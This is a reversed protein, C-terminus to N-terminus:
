TRKNGDPGLVRIPRGAIFAEINEVTEGYYLEYNERIVYGIHPTALVNPLHRYPHDRPLPEDNFVDLGAGGIRGAKLAEIMAPEDILPMRSTNILFATPKM